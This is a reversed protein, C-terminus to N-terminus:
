DRTAWADWEINLKEVRVSGEVPKKFIATSVFNENGADVIQPTGVSVYKVKM